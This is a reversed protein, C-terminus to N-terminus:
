SHTQNGTPYECNDDVDKNPDLEAPYLRDYTVTVPARGTELPQVTVGDEGLDTIQGLQFGSAPHPVWVQQEEM